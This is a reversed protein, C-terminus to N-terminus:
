LSGFVELHRRAQEAPDFRALAWARAREAMQARQDSPRILAELQVRLADLDDSDVMLATKGEEVAEEVGQYRFAVVPLGMCQAEILFNPLADEASASVAVDSAAYYPFPDAVAGAFVVRNELGLSAALRQANARTKGDGVLVATWNLRPSLGALAHLLRDHRKGPRFEAVNVLVVASGAIGLEARLSSRRAPAQSFDWDFGLGNPIVHVRAEPLGRSILQDKWWNTNTVIAPLSQFSHWNLRPLAKGTRVTGVVRTCPLRRAIRGAFSNAVRGMCLVVDPSHTKIANVLGPALVNLRYDRRTLSTLEIGAASADAQLPGGPRMTLISARSDLQILYKCLRVSQRETGGRRLYDQLVIIRM